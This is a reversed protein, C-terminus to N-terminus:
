ASTEQKSSHVKNAGTLAGATSWSGTFYRRCTATRVWWTRTAGGTASSQFKYLFNDSGSHDVKLWEPQHQGLTFWNDFKGQAYIGSKYVVFGEDPEFSVVIPGNQDIEKMMDFENSMGYAGGVYRNLSLVTAQLLPLLPQSQM